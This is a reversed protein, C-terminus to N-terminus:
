GQAERSRQRLWADLILAAAAADIREKQERESRKLGMGRVAREAAVSTMREDIWRVPLGTRRELDAGFQRVEATWATEDGSLDLPLGVVAEDVENEEVLKAIEPWPPRKGARRQLTTLPSAITRTPDSVAVGIRREGYDLAMSRPM